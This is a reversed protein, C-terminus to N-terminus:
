KDKGKLVKKKILIIGGILLIAVITGLIYYIHVEGFPPLIVIKEAMSTDVEAPENALPNQNGVVSYAMRRGVTNSTKVIEIMNSYTLDDEENEPTILQSLILTKSISSETENNGNSPVLEKSLSDTQIITNFKTLQEAFRKNILDQNVDSHSTLDNLKIVSWKDQSNVKNSADFQLNNQVYDVVQNSNTTVTIANNDKIGRYYFDKTSDDSYDIEGVNTVKVTYTIQITAGHMLEEDMTLQILGRDTNEVIKDIETRYAYRHDKNYYEEYMGDKKKEGISYEEHDKWIANNAAKNIDFLISGNALTVKVNAVSKDIELQAKPREVLGFDINNLTYNSNYANEGVYNKSSNNSNNQTSNLGDSQQRDYEFEVVIVGTEATMYTNDMLEKYLSSDESYPSALVEAIHNTVNDKSYDIVKQRGQILRASKVPGIINLGARNETSWVDKADSYNTKNSDAKYIDYGYTTKDPSIQETERKKPNATGSVNQTDTYIYGQYRGSTDTIGNQEIGEQYITSKFDQGNYSTINAGGNKNTLATVEKDGYYFRIVYDGPIYGEFNYKGGDSTTTEQWIYEYQKGEDDVGKEVLQVTVGNVGIENEQRIGDGIISNNVNKTREDEWVTGNAKRIADEDIIVRLAPARDTDDEFNKEYKEGQLDEAVLNGPNSDRDLLGAIDNSGKSVNNPLKTENKYYTMYGNIEALNEKPSSEEDLIIRNNNKNVEFTLYIYASEGTALKKDELGTVYLAKYKSNKNVINSHTASGYISNEENVKADKSNTIFNTASTSEKDIVEQQQEMMSYYEDKSISTTKNKDTAYIVWSLNPKYTYDQDYYDVVEKIQTMISQSQNRITIKYTVYMELPDGPHNEGQTNFKFDADYIERNYNMGYYSNYDSMRVNIDWYTNNDKGDKNNAGEDEVKRKDYNYVVTKDNIKLVAKYVDKRLAADFEQRRWLGQNIFFQGPYIPNYKIGDFYVSNTNYNANQYQEITTYEDYDKTKNIEFKDYVPYLDIQQNTPSGTYSQIYCDEIFQIKCQMEAIGNAIKVYINKLAKEDPFKKNQLIFERIEKSIRGEKFETTELGNEDYLYGDILQLEPYYVYKGEDNLIYGMLEKQTYSINYYQKNESNYQAWGLSNSSPYNYPFSGIEQFREDYGERSIEVGPFTSKNSETGKSTVKWENTNYLGANVMQNASTYQGNATNLYETPLYRQGNYEFVVYYKKMPDLGEFLYNGNENTFTPNIRNMVKNVDESPNTILNAIKGNQEYLTVKVNKLPIDVNEGTTNSIGDAISEKSAVKDEWVHGGLDMTIDFPEDKGDIGIIIEQEYISRIADAAIIWQQPMGTLYPYNICNHCCGDCYELEGDEGEHGHCHIDTTVHNYNVTYKTGQLLTYKGNALMYKFEIKISIYKIRDEVSEINANPDKIVIQFDQGSEPYVQESRDVKLDISPEFYQPVQAAGYIGTVKDKLIIKEIKIDNKVEKKNSNYGIVTMNSIGSFAVQGFIGNNYELNYPGITLEGTTRNIKETVEELITKDTPELGTDRVVYDYEAYDIAEQDFRTPGAAVSNADGIILDNDAPEYQGTKANYVEEDRLNWLGKQKEMSFKGIPTDSVIYAAALPLTITDVPRYVPPTTAGRYNLAPCGHYGPVPPLGMADAYRISYGYTIPPGPQICYIEYNSYTPVYSPAGTNTLAEFMGINIHYNYTTPDKEGEALIGSNTTASNRSYSILNNKSISKTSDYGLIIFLIAILIIVIYISTRINKKNM